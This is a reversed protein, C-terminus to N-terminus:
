RDHVPSLSEAELWERDATLEHPQWRGCQWARRDQEEERTWMSRIARCTERIQRKTPLFGDRYLKAAEALFATRDFDNTFDRDDITTRLPM